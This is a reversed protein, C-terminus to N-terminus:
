GCFPIDTVFAFLQVRGFAFVFVMVLAKRSTRYMGVRSLQLFTLITGERSAFYTPIKYTCFIICLHPVGRSVWRWALLRKYVRAGLLIDM